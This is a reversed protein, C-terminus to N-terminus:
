RFILYSLTTVVASLVTGWTMDIITLKASWGKLTAMNTLDYTAYCVLGFFAGHWVALSISHHDLAPQLAFVVLGIIYILYFLIAPAPLFKKRLLKGIYKNYIKNAAFGIWFVDIASFILATVIVQKVIM